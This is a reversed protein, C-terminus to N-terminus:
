LAADLADNLAKPTLNLKIQGNHAHSIKGREESIVIVQADLNETLGVAARHRMGIRKPLDTNESVPLICGAALIRQNAIILAGDHLPSNKAFISEVIKSSIEANLAVGTNAFYLKESEDAFVLLAGVKNNAMNNIAKLLEEKSKSKQTKDNINRNLIRRWLGDNGIGSGKGIYFLFRRLEQQFVIALLIIGAGIFQNLLNALLGMGLEHVILSLLYIVLFGIFITFAFSGRLLQYLKYFLIGVLLIDIIDWFGIELFDIKIFALKGDLFM